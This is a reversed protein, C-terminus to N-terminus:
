LESHANPNRFFTPRRATSASKLAPPPNGLADLRDEMNTLGKRASASVVFGRGDDAVGLALQDGDKALRVVARSAQACKQIDQLAGLIFFSLAAETDQPYRGTGDAEITIPLSAKRAQAQLVAAPRRQRSRHTSALRLAPHSPRFARSWPM